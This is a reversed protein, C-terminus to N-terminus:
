SIAVIRPIAGVQAPILAAKLFLEKTGAITDEIIFLLPSARKEGTPYKNTERIQQLFLIRSIVTGRRKNIRIQV